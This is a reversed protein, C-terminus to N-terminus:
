VFFKTNGRTEDHTQCGGNRQRLRRSAFHRAHLRKFTTGTLHVRFTKGDTLRRFVDHYLLKVDKDTTIKYLSNVSQREAKRNELTNDFTIAAVFEDGDVWSTKQGGSGDPVSKATMRVCLFKFDDILSM